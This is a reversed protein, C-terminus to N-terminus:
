KIEFEGYITETKDSFDGGDDAAVSARVRYKGKRSLDYDSSELTFTMSDSALSYPYVLSNTRIPSTRVSVWEGNECYEIDAYIGAWFMREPFVIKYRIEGENDYNNSVHVRAGYGEGDDIRESMEFEYFAGSYKDDSNLKRFPMALRYKGEPLPPYCPSDLVVHIRGSSFADYIERPSSNEQIMEAVPLVEYWKGDAEYKELTYGFDKTEYKEDRDVTYYSVCM